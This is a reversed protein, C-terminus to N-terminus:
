SQVRGPNGEKVISKRMGYIISRVDQIKHKYDKGVVTLKGEYFEKLIPTADDGFTFRVKGNALEVNKYNCDRVLLVAIEYVDTLAIM